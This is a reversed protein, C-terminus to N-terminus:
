LSDLAVQYKFSPIEVVYPKDTKFLKQKASPYHYIYITEGSPTQVGFYNKGQSLRPEEFETSKKFYGIVSKPDMDTGYYYVSAPQSDCFVWCGYDEKGLYEMKTGLPHPTLNTIGWLTFTAILTISIITIIKHKKLFGITQSLKLQM